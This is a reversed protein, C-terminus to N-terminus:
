LDFMFNQSNLIMQKRIGFRENNNKFIKSFIFIYLFRSDVIFGLSRSFVAKLWWVSTHMLGVHALAIFWSFACFQFYFIGGADPSLIARNM